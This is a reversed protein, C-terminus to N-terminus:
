TVPTVPLVADGRAAMVVVTADVADATGAAAQLEGAVRGDRQTVTHVDTAQLLRALRVQHGTTVIWPSLRGREIMCLGADVGDAPM